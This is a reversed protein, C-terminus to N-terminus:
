PMAVLALSGLYLAIWFVYAARSPEAPKEIHPAPPNDLIHPDIM